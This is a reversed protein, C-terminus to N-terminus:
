FLLIIWRTRCAVRLNKLMSYVIGKYHKYFQIFALLILASKRQNTKKKSKNSFLQYYCCGEAIDFM